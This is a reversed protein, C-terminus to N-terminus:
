TTAFRATLVPTATDPLMTITDCPSSFTSPLSSPSIAAISPVCFPSM